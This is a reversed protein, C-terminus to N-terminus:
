NDLTKERIMLNYLSQRTSELVWNINFDEIIVNQSSAHQGLITCLASLLRPISVKPSRYLAIITLHPYRETKFSQLSLEM